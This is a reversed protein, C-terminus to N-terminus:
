AGYRQTVWEPFSRIWETESTGHRQHMFREIESLPLDPFSPSVNSVAYMGDPQLAYVTLREKRYRWLEPVGLAAYIALKNMSSRTNEVEIMLDPPPDNTLDIDDRGRVLPESRVYFCEDPELGKRREKQRWTTGGFGAIPVNRTDSYVGILRALMYGARDHRPAPAMIELTGDDYTLLFHEEDLDRLLAEYTEWSINRLVVRQRVDADEDSQDPDAIVPPASIVTM